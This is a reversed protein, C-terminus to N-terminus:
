GRTLSLSRWSQGQPQQLAGKRGEKGKWCWQPMAPTGGRSLPLLAGRSLWQSSGLSSM